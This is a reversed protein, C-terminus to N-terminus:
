LLSQPARGFGMAWVFSYISGAVIPIPGVRQRAIMRVGADGDSWTAPNPPTASSGRTFLCMASVEEGAYVDGDVDAVMRLASLPGITTSVTTRTRDGDALVHQLMITSLPDPGVDTGSPTTPTPNDSELWIMSIRENSPAVGPQQDLMDLLVDFLNDTLTNRRSVLIDCVGTVKDTRHVEVWGEALVAQMPKDAAKSM